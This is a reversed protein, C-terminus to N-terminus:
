HFGCSFTLVISSQLSENCAFLVSNYLKVIFRIGDQIYIFSAHVFDKYNM